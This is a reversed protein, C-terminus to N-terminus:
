EYFYLASKVEGLKILTDKYVLLTEITLIGKSTNQPALVFLEIPLKGFWSTGDPRKSLVISASNGAAGSSIILVKPNWEWRFGVGAQAEGSVPGWQRDAKLAVNFDAKGGYNAPVFLSNPLIDRLEMTSESSDSGEIQIKIMIKSFDSGFDGLNASSPAITIPVPVRWLRFPGVRKLPDSVVISESLLMEGLVVKNSDQNPYKYEGHREKYIRVLAAAYSSVLSAAAMRPDTADQKLREKERNLLTNTSQSIIEM